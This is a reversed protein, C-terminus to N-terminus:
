SGLLLLVAMALTVSLAVWAGLRRAVSVETSAWIDMQSWTLLRRSGSTGGGAERSSHQKSHELLMTM